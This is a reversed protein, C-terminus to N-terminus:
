NAYLFIYSTGITRVKIPNKWLQVIKSYALRLEVLGLPLFSPPLYKFPFSDWELFRLENSLYEFNTYGDRVSMATDYIILMRLKKMNSFAEFSTEERPYICPCVM